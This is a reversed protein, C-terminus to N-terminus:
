LFLDNTSTNLEYITRHVQSQRGELDSYNFPKNAEEKKAEM